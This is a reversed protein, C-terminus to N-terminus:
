EKNLLQNIERHFIIALQKWDYHSALERANQGKLAFSDKSKLINVLRRSINESDTECVWGADFKKVEDAMNSGPSVLVPLGYALAEILGMPHGEFRSTLVFLDSDLLAQEKESGLIEGGLKVFDGIGYAGIKQKVWEYDIIKPGYLILKFDNKRLQDMTLKCAKLLVDLGKQYVDLRGVFVAKIGNRCFGTRFLRPMNFGNPIVLHNKCWKEGSDEFERKTLYQIALAHRCYSNFFLLHAVKKKLWSNNHLAQRTLSSRPVIIYPIKRKRLEYSLKVQQRNYFGEFVVIDINPFAKEINSLNFKDFESANHFYSKAAWEERVVDTLNIWFVDDILSQGEIRGPVSYNPGTSAVSSLHSIFLIRMSKIKLFGM